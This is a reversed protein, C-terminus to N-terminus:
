VACEQEYLAEFALAREAAAYLNGASVSFLTVILLVFLSIFLKRSETSDQSVCHM